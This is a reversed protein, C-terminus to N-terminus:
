SRRDEEERQYRNMDEEFERQQVEFPSERSKRFRDDYGDTAWAESDFFSMLWAVAIVVAIFFMISGVWFQHFFQLAVYGGVLFGGIWLCYKIQRWLFRFLWKMSSM